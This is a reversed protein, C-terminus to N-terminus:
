RETPVRDSRVPLRGPLTAVHISRRDARGPWASTYYQVGELTVLMDLESTCQKRLAILPGYQPSNYCSELDTM